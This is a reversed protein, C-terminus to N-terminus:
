AAKRQGLERFMAHAKEGTEGDHVVAALAKLMAASRDVPVHQPGHRRRGRGPGRGQLGHDARRTRAAEQRRGDRDAGPLRARTEFGEEVYYTKVYQAGLEAIIRCALGFYQADRVM